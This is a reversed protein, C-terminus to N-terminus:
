KVKRLYEFMKAFQQVARITFDNGFVGLSLSFFDQVIDTLAKYMASFQPKMQTADIKGHSSRELVQLASELRWLSLRLRRVANRLADREDDGYFTFNADSQDNGLIASSNFQAM